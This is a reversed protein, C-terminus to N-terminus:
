FVVTKFVKGGTRVIYVGQPMPLVTKSGTAQLSAAQAGNITYVSIQGAANELVIAGQAAYVNTKSDEPTLVPTPSGATSIRLEFRNDFIGAEASFTYEEATLDIAKDLDKDILFIEYGEAPSQLAITYDDAKGTYVGLAVLGDGLPRENIAYQVKSADISYLQPTEPSTSMFKAADCEIEYAQAAKSNLVIRTKDGSEGNDIKLNILTRAGSSRLASIRQVLETTHQRGAVPFNIAPLDTPKQVFFAQYPQLLFADDIPSVADYRSNNYNWYTIPATYDLCRIDYYAAFPNGTLNWGQNAANEAPYATLSVAQAISAFLRNKSAGTAPLTLHSINKSCQFIYGKGARLTDIAEVNKWSYGAGSAARSAGDYYRFVYFADEDISIDAIAVDFPFSLYYWRNGYANMDIKVQQATMNNCESILRAYSANYGYQLQSNLVFQNASFPMNGRVSLNGAPNIEVNPLGQPRVSGSITLSGNVVINEITGNYPNINLFEKWADALKYDTQAWVPVILECTSKNVGGFPHYYADSSYMAPPTAALCIIQQLNTCNRFSVYGLYTVGAPFTIQALQSCGDFAYNEIRSLKSPLQISPLSTCGSFLSSNLTTLHDPLSVKKLVRCNAFATSGITTVSEPINAEELLWCERFADTNITKLTNPFAFSRLNICGYFAYSGILSLSGSFHASYLNYCDYFANNSIEELSAPFVPTKLATCARFCESGIKKLGAPLQINQLGKRNYFLQNPLETNTIESLDVSILDTMDTRIQIFDTSNLTGTLKLVNVDSMYTFLELVKEGLTGPTTINLTLSTPQDGGIIIKTQWHAASKYNAKATAPVYVLNINNMSNENYLTPPTEAAVKCSTLKHCGNFAEYGIYTLTSPLELKGAWQQCNKFAYHAINTLGESFVVQTLSACNEFACEGITRLSAPFHVSQFATNYFAYNGISQLGESFAVQTASTCDRFAENGISTLSAPFSLTQLATARFANGEITKLSTPFNIQALATCYYFSTGRITVIENPLKVSKLTKKERFADSPIENNTVAVGSIDLYALQPLSNRMYYFDTSNLFGTIVLSDVDTANLVSSLQGAVPVNVETVAQVSTAYVLILSAFTLVRVQKLFSFTKM